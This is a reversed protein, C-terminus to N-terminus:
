DAASPFAFRGERFLAVCACAVRPDYLVGSRSEIEALAADLGPAPRYPRDSTMAEVVDAVALIRAEECIADGSLGNPYGSGDMREHHERIIRPLLAPFGVGEVISGGESPHRRVLAREEPTLAGAKKLVDPPVAIMGVDHLMAAVRVLDTREPGYELERAVAEALMAARRDHESESCDQLELIKTTLLIADNMLTHVREKQDESEALLDEIIRTRRELDEKAQRLAEETEHKETIDHAISFLMTAGEMEVPGAFVEMRRSSGDSRRHLLVFRRPGQSADRLRQRLEAEIPEASLDRTTLKLFEERTYGYFETTAANCDVFRGTKPDVVYMVAHSKHFISSYRRESERLASETESQATIDRGVLIIGTAEGGPTQYLNRVTWRMHRSKGSKTRITSIFDESTGEEGGLIRLRSEVAARYVPDPYLWERFEGGAMVVEGRAYGSIIEAARNWIVPERNENLVEFWINAHDIVSELYQKLSEQEQEALVHKTVDSLITAFYGLAPSFVSIDLYKGIKEYQAMFRTSDRELASRAYISLYPVPDGLLESARKGVIRDRSVGLVRECSPNVDLFEYDEPKGDKLIIRHLALGEAMHTFLSGALDHIREPSVDMGGSEPLDGKLHEYIREM